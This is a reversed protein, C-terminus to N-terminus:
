NVIAVGDMLISATRVFSGSIINETDRNIKIIAAISGSVHEIRVRYDLNNISSLPKSIKTAITDPILCCSALAMAGTVAHSDHLSFPDYYYSKIDCSDSVTVISVKPIVSESINQVGIVEGVYARLKRIKTMIEESQLFEISTNADVGVSKGDIIIMPVSVDIVTFDIGLYNSRKCDLPFLKGTKSGVVNFFELIIEPFAGTVGSLLTNGSPVLGSENTLVKAHVVQNTNTNLIRVTTVGNHNFPVLGKFISYVPVASIFNGCNPKMDVVNSDPMLQMFLYEIDINELTSKKIIGVKNNTSKGGGLGQVQNRYSDPAGMIKLVLDCKADLNSPLDSELFMVGKSTGGRVLTCPVSNFNSM